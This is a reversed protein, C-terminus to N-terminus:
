AVPLRGALWGSLLTVTDPPTSAEHKAKAQRAAELVEEAKVADVCGGGEGGGM